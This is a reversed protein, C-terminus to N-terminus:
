IPPIRSFVAEANRALGNQSCTRLFAMSNLDAMTKFFRDECDKGFPKLHYTAVGQVAGCPLYLRRAFVKTSAGGREVRVEEGGDDEDRAVGTISLEFGSKDEVWAIDVTASQAGPMEAVVYSGPHDVLPSITIFDDGCDDADNSALAEPRFQGAADSITCSAPPLRPAPVSLYEEEVTQELGPVLPLTVRLLSSDLRYSIREADVADPLVFERAFM